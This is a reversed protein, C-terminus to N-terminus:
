NKAKDVLKNKGRGPKKNRLNTDNIIIRDTM